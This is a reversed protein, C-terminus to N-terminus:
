NQIEKVVRFGLVMSRVTSQVGQRSASRVNNMSSNFHGGRYARRSCNQRSESRWRSSTTWGAYGEASYCSATAEMVNGHMHRLGWNNEAQLQEVRVPADRTVLETQDTFEIFDTM